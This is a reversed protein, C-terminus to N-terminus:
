WTIPSSQLHVGEQFTGTYIKDAACWMEEGVWGGDRGAFGSESVGKGVM